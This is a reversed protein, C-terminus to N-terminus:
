KKIIEWEDPNTVHVRRIALAFNNQVYIVNYVSESDKHRITDGVRLNSISKLPIFEIESFKIDSM